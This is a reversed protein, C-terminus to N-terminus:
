QQTAHYLFNTIENILFLIQIIKFNIIPFSNGGKTSYRTTLPHDRINIMRTRRKQLRIYPFAAVLEAPTVKTKSLVPSHYPFRMIEEFLGESFHELHRSIAEM